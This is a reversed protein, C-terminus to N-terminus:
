YVVRIRQGAGDKLVFLQAAFKPASMVGRANNSFGYGETPIGLLNFDMKQNANEDHYLKIAYNGNPLNNFQHSVSGKQAPIFLQEVVQQQANLLQLAINGKNSRVSTIEVWLTGTSSRKVGLSMCAFGVCLM